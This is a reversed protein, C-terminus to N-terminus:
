HAYELVQQLVVHSIEQVTINHYMLFQTPTLMTANTSTCCPVNVLTVVVACLTCLRTESQPTYHVLCMFLYDYNRRVIASLVIWSLPKLVPLV